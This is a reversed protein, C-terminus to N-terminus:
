SPPVLVGKVDKKSDGCNVHCRQHLRRMRRELARKASRMAFPSTGWVEIEYRYPNYWIYEIGDIARTLDKFFSGNKGILHKVFVFPITIDVYTCECFMSPPNYVNPRSFCNWSATM